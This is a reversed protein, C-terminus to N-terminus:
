FSSLSSVDYWQLTPLNLLLRILNDGFTPTTKASIIEAYELLIDNSVALNLQEDAIADFLTRLAAKKPLTALLVNTDLVITM